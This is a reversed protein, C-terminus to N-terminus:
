QVVGERYTASIKERLFLRARHLRTKVSQASIGLIEATEQTSFGEIDRLTFVLRYKHSRQKWCCVGLGIGALGEYEIM